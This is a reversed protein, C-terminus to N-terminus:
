PSDALKIRVTIGIPLVFNGITFHLMLQEAWDTFSFINRFNLGNSNVARKWWRGESSFCFFILIALQSYFGVCIM